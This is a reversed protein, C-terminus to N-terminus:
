GVENAVWDLYDANGGVLAVAVVEPVDYGHLEVARATLAALRADTTKALLLLEDAREVAGEWRFVSVMPGLVQACAALREEVLARHSRGRGSRWM